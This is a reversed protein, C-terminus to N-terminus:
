LESEKNMLSHVYQMRELDNITDLLTDWTRPLPQRQLWLFLCEILCRSAQYQHKGRVNSLDVPSIRLFVGLQQWKAM